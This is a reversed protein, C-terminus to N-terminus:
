PSPIPRGPPGGRTSRSSGDIVPLGSIGHRVLLAAAEKLSTSPEVRVVERTMVDNVKM